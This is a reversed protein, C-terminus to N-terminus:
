RLLLPPAPIRELSTAVTRVPGRRRGLGGVVVLDRGPQAGVFKWWVVIVALPGFHDVFCCAGATRRRAKPLSRRVTTTGVQSTRADVIEAVPPEPTSGQPTLPADSPRVPGSM